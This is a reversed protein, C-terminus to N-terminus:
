TKQLNAISKNIANTIESLDSRSNPDKLPLKMGSQPTGGGGIFLEIKSADLALKKAAAILFVGLLFLGGGGLGVDKYAAIISGGILLFIIGIIILGIPSTKTEKIEVSSINRIPYQGGSGNNFVTDSVSVGNKEYFM